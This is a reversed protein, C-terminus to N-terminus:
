FRSKVSVMPTVPEQAPASPPPSGANGPAKKKEMEKVVSRAQRVWELLALPDEGSPALAKVSEPWAAVEEDLQDKMLSSLVEAQKVMPKLQTIEEQRSQALEQWRQQEELQSETLSRLKEDTERLKV